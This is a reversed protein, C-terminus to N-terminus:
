SYVINSSLQLVSEVLSELSPPDDRKYTMMNENSFILDLDSEIKLQFLLGLHIYGFKPCIM